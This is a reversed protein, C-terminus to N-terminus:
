LSPCPVLTTEGATGSALHILLAVTSDNGFLIANAITGATLNLPCSRNPAGDGNTDVMLKSSTYVTAYGSSKGPELTAALPGSLGYSPASGAHIIRVRADGSPPPTPDDTFLAVSPGVGYLVATHDFGPNLLPLSALPVPANPTTVALTAGPALELYATAKTYLLGSFVAQADSLLDLSPTGSYVNVVSVFAPLDPSTCPVITPAGTMPAVWAALGGDQVFLAVHASGGSTGDLACIAEPASDGAFDVELNVPGATTVFAASAAGLGLPSLPVAPGQTPRATVDYNANAAGQLVRWRTAGTEAPEHVLALAVPATGLAFASARDGKDVTFSATSASEGAFGLTIQHPGADLGLEESTAPAVVLTTLQGDLAVTVPDPTVAFIRLTADTPKTCEVLEPPPAMTGDIARQVILVRGGKPRTAIFATLADGAKLTSLTCELRGTGDTIAITTSAANVNLSSSTQGLALGESFDIDGTPTVLALDVAGTGTAAHVVRLAVTTADSSVMDAILLWSIGANNGVLATTYTQGESLLVPGLSATLAGATAIATFADVTVNTIPSENGFALLPLLEDNVTATVPLNLRAAQLLRVPTKEPPECPVVAVGGTWALLETTDSPGDRLVLSAAVGAPFVGARCVLTPAKVEGGPGVGFMLATGDITVQTAEGVSLDAVTAWEPVADAGADILAYLGVPGLAEAVHGAGLVPGEPTGLPTSTVVVGLKGAIEWVILDVKAGAELALKPLVAPLSPGTGATVAVRFTLDGAPLNFPASASSHAQASILTEVAGEYYWGIDVTRTRTANLVRVTGTPVDPVTCPSLAPAAGPVDNLITLADPTGDVSTEGAPLLVAIANPAVACIATLQGARVLQEGPAVLRSEFAPLPGPGDAEPDGLILDALPSVLLSTGAPPVPLVVLRPIAADSMAVITQRDGGELALTAEALPEDPASPAAVDAVSAIAPVTAWGSASPFAGSALTTGDFRLLLPTVGDAAHLFRLEARADREACELLRTATRGVALVGAHDPASAPGGLVVFVLADSGLDPLACDFYRTLGDVAPSTILRVGLLPSAVTTLSSLQRPTLPGTLTAPQVPGLPSQDSPQTLEVTPLATAGSLGRVRLAGKPAAPPDELVVAGADTLVATYRRGARWTTFPLPEGGVTVTASAMPVPLFRGVDFASVSATEGNVTLPTPATTANVLRLSAPETPDYATPAPAPNQSLSPAIAATESCALAALLLASAAVSM